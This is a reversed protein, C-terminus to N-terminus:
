LNSGVVIIGTGMVEEALSHSMFKFNVDYPDAPTEEGSAISVCFPSMNNNEPDPTLLSTDQVLICEDHEDLVDFGVCKSGGAFVYSFGLEYETDVYSNYGGYEGLDIYGTVCGGTGPALTGVFDFVIDREVPTPIPLGSFLDTCSGTVLGLSLVMVLVGVTPPKILTHNPQRAGFLM